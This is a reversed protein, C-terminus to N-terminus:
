IQPLIGCFGEKPTIKANSQFTNLITNRGKNMSAYMKMDSHGRGFNATISETTDAQNEENHGFLISTTLM